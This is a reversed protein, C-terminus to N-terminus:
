AIAPLAVAAHTASDLGTSLLEAGGVAAMLLREFSSQIVAISLASVPKSQRTAHRIM